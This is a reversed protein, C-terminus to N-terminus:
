QEVTWTAHGPAEGADHTVRRAEEPRELVEIITFHQYFEPRTVDAAVGEEPGGLNVGMNDRDARDFDEERITSARDSMDGLTIKSIVDTYLKDIPLVTLANIDELAVAEPEHGFDFNVKFYNYDDVITCVIRDFEKPTLVRMAYQTYSIFTSRRLDEQFMEIDISNRTSIDLKNRETEVINNFLERSEGIPPTQAINTMGDAFCFYDESLDIGSTLRLYLKCYYDRVINKFVQYATYPYASTVLGQTYAPQTWSFGQQEYFLGYPSFVATEIFQHLQTIDFEKLSDLSYETIRSNVGTMFRSIDYVPAHTNIEIQDTVMNKRLFFVRFMTSNSFYNASEEAEAIARSRLIELHGMPLGTAVIRRKGHPVQLGPSIFEGGLVQYMRVGGLASSDYNTAASQMLAAFLLVDAQKITRAAPLYSYERDPTGLMRLQYHSLRLQDSLLMAFQAGPDISYNDNIRKMIDSFSDLNTDQVAATQIATSFREFATALKDITNHSFHAANLNRMENRIAGHYTSQIIDLIRLTAGKNPSHHRDTYSETASTPDYKAESMSAGWTTYDDGSAWISIAHELNKITRLNLLYLTKRGSIHGEFPWVDNTSVMTLTTGPVPVDLDGCSLDNTFTDVLEERTYDALDQFINTPDSRWSELEENQWLTTLVEPVKGTDPTGVLYCMEISEYLLRTLFKYALLYLGWFHIGFSQHGRIYTELTVKGTQGVEVGIAELVDNCAWFIISYLTGGIANRQESVDEWQIFELPTWSTAYHNAASSQSATTLEDSFRTAATPFMTKYMKEWRVDVSGGTTNGRGFTGFNGTYALRANTDDSWLRITNLGTYGIDFSSIMGPNTRNALRDICIALDIVPAWLGTDKLDQQNRTPDGDNDAIEAAKARILDSLYAGTTDDADYATTSAWTVPDLRKQFWGTGKSLTTPDENANQFYERRYTLFRYLSWFVSAQNGAVDTTVGFKDEYGAMMLTMLQFTETPGVCNDLSNNTHLTASEMYARLRYLVRDLLYGSSWTHERDSTYATYNLGKSPYTLKFLGKIQLQINRLREAQDQAHVLVVQNVSRDFIKEIFYSYGSIVENSTGFGDAYSSLSSEFVAIKSTPNATGAIRSQPVLVNRMSEHGHTSTNAERGFINDTTSGFLGSGYTANLTSSIPPGSRTNWTQPGKISQPGDFADQLYKNTLSTPLASFNSVWHATIKHAILLNRLTVSVLTGLEGQSDLAIFDQATSSNTQFGWLSLAEVDTIEYIDRTQVMYHDSSLDSGDDDTNLIGTYRSGESAVQHYLELDGYISSDNDLVYETSPITSAGKALSTLVEAVAMHTAKQPAIQLPRTIKFLNNGFDNLDPDSASGGSIGLANIEFNGVRPNRREHQYRLMSRMFDVLLTGVIHQSSDSVSTTQIGEIKDADRLINLWTIPHTINGPLNGILFPSLSGLGRVSWAPLVHELYTELAPLTITHYDNLNVNMADHVAQVDDYIHGLFYLVDHATNMLQTYTNALPVIAASGPGDPGELFEKMMIYRAQKLQFQLDMLIGVGTSDPITTLGLIRGSSMQEAVLDKYIPAEYETSMVIMSRKQDIGVGTASLISLASMLDQNYFGSTIPTFTAGLATAKFTFGSSLRSGGVTVAVNLGNNGSATIRAKQVVAPISLNNDVVSDNPIKIKSDATVTSVQIQGKIIKQFKVSV